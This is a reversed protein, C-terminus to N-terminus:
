AEHTTVRFGLILRSKSHCCLQQTKKPEPPLTHAVASVSVSTSVSVGAGFALAVSGPWTTFLSTQQGHLAFKM